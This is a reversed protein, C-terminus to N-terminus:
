KFLSAFADWFGIKDPKALGKLTKLSANNPDIQLGVRIYGQAKEYNDHAIEREALVAFRTAIDLLGARAKENNPQLRLLRSFYYHANDKPPATLRYEELSHAGLWALAQTVQEIDEEAVSEVELAATEGAVSLVPLDAVQVARVEAEKMRGEILILAGWGIVCFLLLGGSAYRLWNGSKSEVSLRTPAPIDPKDHEGTIDFDPQETLDEKTQIVGKRQLAQLFHLLSDADRFRDRRDKAMMLQILENFQDLDEPLDPIAETKHKYIVDIVSDAIFPKTGTIMEYFIVGLSYIDARGDIPGPESQEPAMYNPSGVFMGTSTLDSDGELRKAIGFDSLLPTGDSRFLLNAPKVDRHIIGSGHAAALGGAIKTVVDVAEVPTFVQKQLRARLDGGQVYEMSIFVNHGAEGIDFITIIHPHNLSAIIRGENLFRELSQPTDAAGRDLVKLVVERGLSEQEALYATAMGGQGIMEKIVFGPIQM